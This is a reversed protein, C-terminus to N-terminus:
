RKKQSEIDVKIVVTPLKKLTNNEEWETLYNGLLQEKLRIIKNLEQEIVFQQCTNNSKHLELRQVVSVVRSKYMRTISKLERGRESRPIYLRDIHLTQLTSYTSDTWCPSLEWDYSNQKKNQLWKRKNWKYDLWSCQSICNFCTSCIAQASVRKLKLTKKFFTSISLRMRWIENYGLILLFRKFESSYRCFHWFISILCFLRSLNQELM